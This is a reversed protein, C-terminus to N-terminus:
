LYYRSFTFRAGPNPQIPRSCYGITPPISTLLACPVGNSLPTRRPARRHSLTLATAPLRTSTRRRPRDRGRQSRPRWTAPTGARRLDRHAHVVTRLRRRRDPGVLHPDPKGAQRRRPRGCPRPQSPAALAAASQELYDIALAPDLGPRGELELLAELDSGRDLGDRHRVPTSSSTRACWRCDRIRLSLFSFGRRPSCIHARLRM